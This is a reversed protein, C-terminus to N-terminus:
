GKPMRQQVFPRNNEPRSVPPLSSVTPRHGEKSGQEVCYLRVRPPGASPLWWEMLILCSFLWFVMPPEEPGLRLRSLSCLVWYHPYLPATAERSAAKTQKNVANAQPLAKRKKRTGSLSMFPGKLLTSDGQPSITPSPTSQLSGCAQGDRAEAKQSEMKERMWRARLHGM